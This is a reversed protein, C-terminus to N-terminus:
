AEGEGEPGGEEGEPRITEDQTLAKNILQDIESAKAISDDYKWTLHPINRTDLVRAVQRQIYGAAGELMKRTKGRDADSGLCSYSITGRTLDSALEVSTITVFTARPDRIEFQLCYAAREKIRSELRQITRPNAM